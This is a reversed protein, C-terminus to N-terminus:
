RSPIDYTIVNKLQVFRNGTQDFHKEKSNMRAAPVAIRFPSQAKYDAHSFPDTNHSFTKLFNLDSKSNKM